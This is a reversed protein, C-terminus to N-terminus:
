QGSASRNRYLLGLGRDQKAVDLCKGTEGFGNPRDFDDIHQIGVKGTHDLYELMVTTDDRLELPIGDQGREVNRDAVGSMHLIRNRRRLGHQSRDGTALICALMEVNTNTNVGAADDGACNPGPTPKVVRHM